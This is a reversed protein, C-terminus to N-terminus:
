AEIFRLTVHDDSIRPCAGNLLFRAELSLQLLELGRTALLNERLLDRRYRRCPLLQLGRQVEHSLTINENAALEVPKGPANRMKALYTARSSAM